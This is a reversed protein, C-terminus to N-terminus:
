AVEMLSRIFAPLEGPTKTGSYSKYRKRGHWGGDYVSMHTMDSAVIFIQDYRAHKNTGGFLLAGVQPKAINLNAAKIEVVAFPTNANSHRPRHFIKFTQKETKNQM